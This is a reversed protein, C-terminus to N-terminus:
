LLLIMPMNVKSSELIKSHELSPHCPSKNCCFKQFTSFLKRGCFTRQVNCVTQTACRIWAIWSRTKRNHRALVQLLRKPPAVSADSAQPKPKACGGLTVLDPYLRSLEESPRSHCLHVIVTTPHQHDQSGASNEIMTAFVKRLNM